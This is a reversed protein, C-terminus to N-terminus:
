AQRVEGLIYCQYRATIILPPIHANQIPDGHRYPLWSIAAKHGTQEGPLEDPLLHGSMVFSHCLSHGSCPHYKCNYLVKSVMFFRHFPNVVTEIDVRESTYVQASVCLCFCVCAVSFM